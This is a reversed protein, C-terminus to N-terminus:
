KYPNEHLTTVDIWLHEPLNMYNIKRKALERFLQIQDFSPRYFDNGEPDLSEYQFCVKGDQIYIILQEISNSVKIKSTGENISCFDDNWIGGTVIEWLRHIPVSGDEMTKTLSSIPLLIPACSDLSHLHTCEKENKLYLRDRGTHAKDTGLVDHFSNHIKSHVKLGYPLYPAINELTLKEM